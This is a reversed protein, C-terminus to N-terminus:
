PLSKRPTRFVPAEINPSGYDTKVPPVPDPPDPPEPPEPGPGPPPESASPLAVGTLCREADVRFDNLLSDQSRVYPFYARLQRVRFDNDDGSYKVAQQKPRIISLTCPDRLEVCGTRPDDVTGDPRRRCIRAIGDFNVVRTVGTPGEVAVDFETGRVGITATPTTISYADKNSNGTIFRFAGRVANISIDRATSDDNFVFADIVMSSNPGVVLRTDDRFRIQAEGGADTVIRDGTHVPAEQQLVLRGTEGDISAQQIVAVVTGSPQAALAQGAAVALLAAVAVRFSGFPTM